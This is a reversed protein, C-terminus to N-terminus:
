PISEGVILFIHHPGSIRSGKAIRKFAELPNNMQRWKSDPMICDIEQMLEEDSKIQEPQLPNKRVLKLAELDDITAKAFFVDEKVVTPVTDWEPKNRHNLTGGFHFWYYILVYLLLFGFASIGEVISSEFYPYPINPIKSLVWSGGYSMIGVPLIGLLVYTGKDQNFFIDIIPLCECGNGVLFRFFFVESYYGM